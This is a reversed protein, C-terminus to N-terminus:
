GCSDWLQINAEVSDKLYNAYEAARSDGVFVSYEHVGILASLFGNLVHTPNQCPYEELITTGNNLITHFGNSRNPYLCELACEAARLYENRGTIKWARLLVSIGLGQSLCSYWPGKLGLGLISISNPFKGDSYQLFWDAHSLFTHKSEETNNKLYNSHHRFANGSIGSPVYNGKGFVIRVPLGRRDFEKFYRENNLWTYDIPYHNLHSSKLYKFRNSSFLVKWLDGVFKKAESKM